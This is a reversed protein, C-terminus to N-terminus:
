HLICYIEELYQERLFIKPSRSMLLWVIDLHIPPDRGATDHLPLQTENYTEEANNRNAKFIINIVNYNDHNKCAMHLPLMGNDNRENISEPWANLSRQITEKECKYEIAKHIPLNNGFFQHQVLLPDDRLSEILRHTNTLHHMCINQLDVINENTIVIPQNM